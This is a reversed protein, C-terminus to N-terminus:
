PSTTKKIKPISNECFSELPNIRVIDILYFYCRLSINVSICINKTIKM